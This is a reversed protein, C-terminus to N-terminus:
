KVLASADQYNSASNNYIAILADLKGTNDDALDVLAASTSKYSNATLWSAVNQAVESVDLTYDSAGVKVNKIANKGTVEVSKINDKLLNAVTLDGENIFSMQKGVTYKITKGSSADKFKTGKGVTVDFFIDDKAALVLTNTGKTDTINIDNAMASYDTIASVDYTDNGAGGDIATYVLAATNSIVFKDNGAGSKIVNNGGSIIFLDNGKGTTIVNTGNSITTFKKDGAGTKITNYGNTIAFTDAGAGSNITNIGASVTYEDIGKGSTVKNQGGNLKIENHAYADDEISTTTKANGLKVTNFGDGITVKNSGDKATVKNTGVSSLYATNDGAGMNVTNSSYGGDVITDNNGYTVKSAAYFVDNGKGFTVKNTGATQTVKAIEGALTNAKITDNYSSGTIVDNGSGSNINVGKANASRYNAATITESLASGKLAGKSNFDDAAYSFTALTLKNLKYSTEPDVTGDPKIRTGNITVEAGTNKGVVDKFIVTGRYAKAEREGTLQCPETLKTDFDSAQEDRAVEEGDISFIQAYVDAITPNKDLGKEIDTQDDDVVYTTGNWVSVTTTKDFKTADTANAAYSVKTLTYSVDAKKYVAIELNKGNAVVEANNYYTNDELVVSLNEGKNTVITDEGFVGKLTVVDTGSGLNITNSNKNDSTFVENLWTGKANGNADVTAKFPESFINKDNVKVEAGSIEGKALNKITVQGLSTLESAENEKNVFTKNDGDGFDSDSIVDGKGLSERDGTVGNITEAGFYETYGTYTTGEAPVIASYTTTSDGAFETGNFKTNVTQVLLKAKEKDNFDSASDINQGGLTMTYTVGDKGATASAVPTAPTTPDVYTKTSASYNAVTTTVDYRATTLKSEAWATDVVNNRTYSKAGVTIGATSDVKETVNDGAVWSGATSGTGYVYTKTTYTIEYKNDSGKETGITAVTREVFKAETTKVTTKKYSAEAASAAYSVVDKDYSYFTTAYYKAIVDNKSVERKIFTNSNIGKFNLNLSENKNVTVEDNGIESVNSDNTDFGFYIVDKGSKLNFKEPNETSYAKDNKDTGTVIGKSNAKQETYITDGLEVNKEANDDILVSGAFKKGYYDKVTVSGLFASDSGTYASKANGLASDDLNEYTSEKGSLWNKTYETYVPKTDAPIESKKIVGEVTKSPDVVFDSGDYWAVTTTTTNYATTVDAEAPVYTEATKGEPLKAPTTSGNFTDTVAWGNNGKTTEASYVDDKVQGSTHDKDYVTDTVTKLYYNSPQGSLAYETSSTGVTKDNLKMFYKAPVAKAKTASYEESGKNTTWQWPNSTAGTNKYEYANTYKTYRENTLKSDDTGYASPTLDVGNRTYGYVSDVTLGSTNDVYITKTTTAESWSAVGAETYQNTSVALGVAYKGAHESGAPEATTSISKIVSKTFETQKSVTESGTYKAEYTNDSFVTHTKTFTHYLDDKGYIVNDQKISVSEKEYYNVVANNGSVSKETYANGYMSDFHLKVTEGKTVVVEDKGIIGSFNIKDYRNDLVTGDSAYDTNSEGLEFKENASTSTAVDNLKSGKTVGAALEYQKTALDVGGLTVGSEKSDALGAVTASGLAEAAAKDYNIGYDALQEPTPATKDKELEIKESDIFEGSKAGTFVKTYVDSNKNDASKEVYEVLAKDAADGNLDVETDFNTGNYIFERSTKTVYIKDYDTVFETEKTADKITETEGHFTRTVVFTSDDTTPKAEVATYDNGESTKVWAWTAPKTSDTEKNKYEYTGAQRLFYDKPANGDAILASGTNSEQIVKGNLTMYYEAVHASENSAAAVTNKTETWKWDYQASVDKYEYTTTTVDYRENTLKSDNWGTIIFDADNRQYFESGSGLVAREDATIYVTTDTAAGWAPTGDYSYTAVKAEVKFKGQHEGTTEAQQSVSLGTFKKFTAQTAEVKEGTYQAKYQTSSYEILDKTYVKKFEATGYNVTDRYFDVQQYEKYDVVVDNGNVYADTFATSTDGEKGAKGTLDFDLAIKEDTSKIVTDKGIVGDFKIKDEGTGLAFVEDEDTSIATENLRTGAFVDEDAKVVWQTVGDPGVAMNKENITLASEVGEAGFNKFTYTYSKTEGGYINFLSEAYTFATGKAAKAAKLDALYTKNYNEGNLTLNLNTITINTDANPNWPQNKITVNGSADTEFDSEDLYIYVYHAEKDVLVDNYNPTLRFMYQGLTEKSTGKDGSKALYMTYNGATVDYGDVKANAAVTVNLKLGVEATTVLDNGDMVSTVKDAKITFINADFLDYSKNGVKTPDEITVNQTTM